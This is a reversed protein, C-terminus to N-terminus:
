VARAPCRIPGTPPAAGGVQAGKQTSGKKADFFVPQTVTADLGQDAGRILPQNQIRPELCDRLVWM